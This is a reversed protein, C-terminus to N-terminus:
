KVSCGQEKALLEQYKNSMENRLEKLPESFNVRSRITRQLLKGLATNRAEDQEETPDKVAPVYVWQLHNELKNSGKTWGYFQDGSEVLECLAPNGEEFDRLSQRMGDKTKIDQLDPFSQRITFYIEKLQEAKAGEEFANFFPAFAKMILRSGVQRVEARSSDADWKAIASLILKDQRVYNKLETKAADSLDEFTATIRIPDLINKRHFDEEHLYSVDTPAEANRFLINLAGLISSKGSGNPGVICTYKDFYITEDEFSRYNEIRLTSIKM